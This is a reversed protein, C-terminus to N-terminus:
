TSEQFADRTFNSPAENPAVWFKRSAAAFVFLCLLLIFLIMLFNKLEVLPM